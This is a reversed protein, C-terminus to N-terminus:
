SGPWLLTFDTVLCVPIDDADYGFFSAYGGDGPGASFFIVNAATDPELNVTGWGWGTKSPDSEDMQRSIVMHYESDQQLRRVFVRTADADMFCGIGTDVGYGPIEGEEIDKGKDDFEAIEWRVPRRDHLRLIAFAVLQYDKYTAQYRARRHEISLIVPYRGPPIRTVFGPTKEDAWPPDCAVIAGSTVTLDGASFHHLTVAGHGTQITVGDQLAYDLGKVIEDRDQQM